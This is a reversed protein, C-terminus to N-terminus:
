TAASIRFCMKLRIKRVCVDKCVGAGVTCNCCSRQQKRSLQAQYCCPGKLLASSIVVLSRRVSEEEHHDKLISSVLLSVLLQSSPLGRDNSEHHKWDLPKGSCHHSCLFVCSSANHAMCIYAKMVQALSLNLYNTYPTHIHMNQHGPACTRMHMCTSTLLPTVCRGRSSELRNWHWKQCSFFESDHIKKIM